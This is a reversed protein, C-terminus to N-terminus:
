KTLEQHRRKALNMIEVSLKAHLKSVKDVDNFSILDEVEGQLKRIEAPRGGWFNPKNIADQLLNVLEIILAKLAEKEKETVVEDKFASFIIFDYFPLEQDDLGEEENEGQRGKELDERVREFEEVIADWNGQYREIIEEMRKLFRKYLAPDKNINVKIHRRIAHEMESAKSKSNKGLKGVEKAFDKSLLSVPAVRSDIGLTELHEDIMKRVKPKAWKLDMSPDKYRNKIRVLLYGFRKAPIYYKRAAESHFLLDLSDFFAKIYTDFQARFPISEALAICDEALQFEADKDTMRQEAFKKFDIIGKDTFLQIMRNYRAELVPIEKNIDRFYELLEKIDEEDEAGWINLADKLHNSVGFYDVLIGHTKDKKTRNVRAIAQLLDHERISKDLYMVQAIPADFGTLLKDCVCLFAVGTEPKLYNGAEDTSYDFDKKFNDVAKIERANKRAASIFAQENNDQKTVVTGIKIFEIKKILDIDPEPKNRELAAREKLAEDILYQYRAAAVISSGVVMAKFGNPLIDDVYHKVLDKAIKRLRDMNELYAQMTGYRKQIEEKEEKSQKKFVDEFDADFAERSKINDNTTKGIYIIDLTARDDVAERIKYTDIFEGTGGFREHTKQKHRDTLLPTGTFAIKTAQPFATFLNDGMDGGQTRHAEDILIVIRDSTNVVDFPKFEPVKGEEVFAKMLAKSHKLEEQVFKHVMVMNLNSATGSLKPVLEKRSGVINAEKFENTLRATASLQKELDKRDVMMIVKYDKLDAQSRLKRVFFVMTLSKGSGQTHWVVGSRTKGSTENRMRDLIKGVARYQQYRCVVKIETGEKIEMFLTFHQLIDLLIEKNLIGKILVEQRVRPDNHLGNNQYRATEEAAYNLVDVNKYAEPFIDKWNLYYEFDGSISGVRAEEGHTAISFLNYHFLREEGDTFGFDDGRTNAYRMIQDVASSIPDAVDVDKCEVVCFPLGNVFLVIDPIIGDRPGGPTVIRFQNIAVFANNEWNKFDVLKVLPNEEGTIENKAVTTKTVGILKEFVQKNAELLSLNAKETAITENYLDEVQKDSLWNVGDVVNIKKIAKIFEQKLTVEKFSTRLSKAPDQPIGFSGQDIIRWDLDKLKELFPKEVNTYEAM